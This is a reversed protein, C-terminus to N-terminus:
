CFEKCHMLYGSHFSGHFLFGVFGLEGDGIGLEEQWDSWQFINLPIDTNEVEDLISEPLNEKLTDLLEQFDMVEPNITVYADYEQPLRGLLGTDNSGTCGALLLALAAIMM